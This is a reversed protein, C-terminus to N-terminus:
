KFWKLWCPLKVFLSELFNLNKKLKTSYNKDNMIAELTESNLIKSNPAHKNVAELMTEKGLGTAIIDGKIKSTLSSIEYDYGRGFPTKTHVFNSITTAETPLYSYIVSGVTTVGVAKVGHKVLQIFRYKITSNEAYIVYVDIGFRLLVLSLSLMGIAEFFMFHEKHESKLLSEHTDRQEEDLQFKYFNIYDQSLLDSYDLAILLFLIQAFPLLYYFIPFEKKYFRTFKNNDELYTNYKILWYGKFKILIQFFSAKIQNYIM